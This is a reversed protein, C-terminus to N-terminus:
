RYRRSYFKLIKSYSLTFGASLFFGKITGIQEDSLRFYELFKCNELLKESACYYLFVSFVTWLLLTAVFCITIKAIWHLITYIDEKRKVASIKAKNEISDLEKEISDLEKESDEDVYQTIKLNELKNHKQSDASM